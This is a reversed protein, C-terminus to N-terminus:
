QEMFFLEDLRGLDLMKKVQGTAGQLILQGNRNHMKDRVILLMGLGASDIFELKSLDFRCLHVTNSNFFTTIERFTAYDAFTLRGELDIYTTTGKSKM